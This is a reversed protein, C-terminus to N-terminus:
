LWWAANWCAVVDELSASVPLTELRTTMASRVPQHFHEPDKQVSMLVDSEDLIGIAHGDQMVPVQSVDAMRMRQFATLLPDEPGVTIM